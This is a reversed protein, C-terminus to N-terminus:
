KHTSSVVIEDNVIEIKFPQNWPDKLIKDIDNKTVLPSNELAEQPKDKVEEPTKGEVTVAYMLANKLKESALQMQAKKAKDMSGKINVGVIGSIVGILVIVIMIELLTMHKKQYAM